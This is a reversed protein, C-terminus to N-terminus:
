KLNNFFAWMEDNASIAKSTPSKRKIGGPKSGGPWSHGGSDTVCVKVQVNDTCGTYLDCHAGKVEKVRKPNPNCKNRKVWRSMTNPVSVFNAVTSMDRFAEQGAGGGYLVHDDDKAHIHLISVPHKPKCDLTGDTGAVSAIAKFVDSMDCALRHSMMGGNSMGTAYIRTSDINMQGTINKVMIRFFGIDDIQRDRAQGCCNGANWTAIKGSAFNSYGNPFVVVYGLEDSKSIQGYFEDRAMYGMDGGGGHLSFLLPAPKDPNYGSPVHVMYYRRLGAYHIAFTYDGTKSLTDTVKATVRPEPQDNLKSLMRERIKAKLWGGGGSDQSADSPGFFLTSAVIIAALVLFHNKM